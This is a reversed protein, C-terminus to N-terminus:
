KRVAHYDEQYEICGRECCTDGVHPLHKDLVELLKTQLLNSAHYMIATATLEQMLEKKYQM